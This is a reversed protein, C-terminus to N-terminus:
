ISVYVCVYKYACRYVCMHMHTYRCVYVEAVEREEELRIIEHAAKEEEQRIAEAVALQERLRVIEFEREVEQLRIVENELAEQELRYVEAAAKENELRIFENAIVEQELRMVEVRVAEAEAVQELRILEAAAAEAAVIMALAEVRDAEDRIVKERHDMMMIRYERQQIFARVRRNIISAANSSSLMVSITVKKSPTVKERMSASLSEVTHQLTGQVDQRAKRIFRQIRIVARIQSSSEIMRAFLYGLFITMSKEEPQNSTDYIPLMLPIGGIAHCARRLTAFNKREGELGKKTEAKTLVVGSLVSAETFEDLEDIDNINHLSVTTNRIMKTTIITPHYYHILLCLARGDALCSTLNYVPVGYTGAIAHCWKLLSNTLVATDSGKLDDDILSKSNQPYIIVGDASKVPVRVALTLVDDAGYISRRWGETGSIIAAEGLVKSSDVLMKLEFTYLIKWLLFLTRDRNGDVIDKSEQVQDCSASVSNMSTNGDFKLVDGEYLKKLVLGV